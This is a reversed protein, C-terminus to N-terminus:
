GRVLKRNELRVTSNDNHSLMAPYVPPGLFDRVRLLLPAPDKFECEWVTLCDWGLRSLKDLNLQDRRSNAALKRAWYEANAVPRRARGCDSHQHWFCGHVFLLKRRRTFVIDPRGPLERMHIRYRYGVAFLFRRLRLEPGTNLSRVSRMVRSRTEPPYVDSM